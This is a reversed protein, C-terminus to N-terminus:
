RLALRALLAAHDSSWRQYKRTELVRWGRGAWLHDLCLVPLGWFWTERFGNGSVEFAHQLQERYPRFWVSGSPTNFDGMLLALPENETKALAQELSKRRPMLPDAHVDALVLRVAGHPAQVVATTVGGAQDLASTQSDRLPWRSLVILGRSLLHCEYGPLANEYEAKHRRYNPGPEVCGAVDPQLERVLRILDASAENPRCLNWFLVRFEGAPQSTSRPVITIQWSSGILGLGGVFLAGRVLGRQGPWLSLVLAIGGLVPLPLVYYLVAIYDLRDRITLHLVAGLLLALWYFWFGLRVIRARTKTTLLAM